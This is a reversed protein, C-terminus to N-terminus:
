VFHVCKQTYSTAVTVPFMLLFRSLKWWSVFISSCLFRMQLLKFVLGISILDFVLGTSTANLLRALGTTTSYIARSLRHLPTCCLPIEVEGISDSSVEAFNVVAGKAILALAIDSAGRMCALLLASRGEQGYIIIWKCTIFHFTLDDYRSYELTLLVSMHICSFLFPALSLSFSVGLRHLVWGFTGVFLRTSRM